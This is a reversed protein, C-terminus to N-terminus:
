LDEKVLNVVSEAFREKSFVTQLELGAENVRNAKVKTCATECAAIFDDENWDFIQGQNFPQGKQFFVNDYAEIRGTTNVLTSNKENAWSAYGHANLIVAHKGLAVSQFEPLGWGEGGSMGIVVNGSNLFENYITNEKMPPYFTVNFPKNGQVANAVWQQNQQENFFPNFIACQLTHHRSNGYKKIWARIVKETHKRKEFKGCLNFVIRDDRHFKKGDLVKFNYTDFALPLYIPNIGFVKFISCTYESSFCIKNNRAILTEVKTPDNLEYFSLLTPKSSISELSGNLHWLKFTPIDRKFSEQGKVIKAHLWNIFEKDEKQSSLDVGGIPFLHWDIADTGAKEREFLTRLLTTSTQGFSVPNIPLHLGLKM